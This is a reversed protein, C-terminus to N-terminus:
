SLKEACLQMKDRFSRDHGEDWCDRVIEVCLPEKLWSNEFRFRRIPTFNNLTKPKLCIPTHDSTSYDLNTLSASPFIQHWTSSALARHLRVEVWNNSGRRKEWTYPHGVNNIDGIVCWPLKSEGALTLLLTWTEHRRSRNPEGYVGILRWNGFHVSNVVM